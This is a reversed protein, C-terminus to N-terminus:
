RGIVTLKMASTARGAIILVERRGYYHPQALNFAGASKAGRKRFPFAEPGSELM